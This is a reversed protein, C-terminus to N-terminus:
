LEFALYMYTNIPLLDPLRSFPDNVIFPPLVECDDFASTALVDFSIVGTLASVNVPIVSPKKIPTRGLSLYENVYLSPLSVAADPVANKPGIRSVLLSAISRAFAASCFEVSRGADVGNVISDSMAPVTLAGLLASGPEPLLVLLPLVVVVVNLLVPLLVMM